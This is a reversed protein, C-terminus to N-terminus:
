LGPCCVLGECHDVDRIDYLLSHNRETSAIDEPVGVLRFYIKINNVESGGPYDQSPVEFYVVVAM